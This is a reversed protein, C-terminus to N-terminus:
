GIGKEKAQRPRSRVGFDTKTHLFGSTYTRLGVLALCQIATYQICYLVIYQIALNFYQLIIYHHYHMNCYISNTIAHIAIYQIPTQTCQLVNITRIQFCWFLVISNHADRSHTIAINVLAMYEVCLQVMILYQFASCM